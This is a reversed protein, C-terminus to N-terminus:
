KLTRLYPLVWSYADENEGGPGLPEIDGELCAYHIYEAAAQPGVQRVFAKVDKDWLIFQCLESAERFVIRTTLRRAM